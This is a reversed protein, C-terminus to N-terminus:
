ESRPQSLAQRARELNIRADQDGPALEVARAFCAEAEALKGLRAYAVGLRAQAAALGPALAVAKEFWPLAQEPQDTDLYTSGIHLYGAPSRPDLRILAEFQERAAEPRGQNGLQIGLDEHVSADHPLYRAQLELQEFAGDYDKRALLDRIYNKSGSVFLDVAPLRQEIRWSEIVGAALACALLSAAAALLWREVQRIAGM